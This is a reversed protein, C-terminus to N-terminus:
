FAVKERVYIFAVIVISTPIKVTIFLFVNMSQQVPYKITKMVERGTEFLVKMSQQIPYNITKMVERGTEFLM